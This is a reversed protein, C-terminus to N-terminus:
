TSPGNKRGKYKNIKKSCVKTCTYLADPNERGMAERIERV